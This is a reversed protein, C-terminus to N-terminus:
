DKSRIKTLTILCLAKFAEEDRDKPLCEIIERLAPIAKEGYRALAYISRTRVVQSSSFIADDKM